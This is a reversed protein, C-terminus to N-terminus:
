SIELLKAILIAALRSTKENEDLPPSLEAVDISIVKGTQVIHKLLPIAQWPTLGLTQPASVGPAYCESFVDLCISLYIHEHRNLFKDLFDKQYSLRNENMQEATLYSVDLAQAQEFLSKTNGQEQIGLCCYSFPQQIKQCYDAIQLFPTGSSGKQDEPLPRLDFHADFNIIGLTPYHASLGKFHPWAIEHGGGFAVTMHGHQHCQAIWEAFQAQASELQDDICHINGLDLYTKEHHCPLKALQSRIHDPGTSAGARGLNRVVGADCGFGLFVTHKKQPLPNKELSLCHVRQFYREGALSDKRGRWVDPNPPVYNTLKDTM